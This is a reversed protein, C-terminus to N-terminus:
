HKSEVVRIRRKKEKKKKEKTKETEAFAKRVEETSVPFKGKLILRKGSQREKCQGNVDRLEKLEQRLITNESQLRESIESLRRM